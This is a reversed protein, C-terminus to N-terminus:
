DHYKRLTKLYDRTEKRQNELLRQSEILNLLRDVKLDHFYTIVKSLNMRAYIFLVFVLIYSNPFIFSEIVIGPNPDDAVFVIVLFTILCMPLYLFGYFDCVYSSISKNPKWSIRTEKLM